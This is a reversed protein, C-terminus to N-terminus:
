FLSVTLLRIEALFYCLSYLCYSLTVIIIWQLNHLFRNKSLHKGSVFSFLSAATYNSYKRFSSSDAFSFALSLCWPFNSELSFKCCYLSYFILYYQKYLPSSLIFKASRQSTPLYPNNLLHM